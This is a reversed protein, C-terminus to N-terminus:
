ENAERISRLMAGIKNLYDIGDNRESEPEIADVVNQFTPEKFDVQVKKVAEKMRTRGIKYGILALNSSDDKSVGLGEMDVMLTDLYKSGARVNIVPDFRDKWDFGADKFAAKTMGM